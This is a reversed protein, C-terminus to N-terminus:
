AVRAEESMTLAQLALGARLINLAANTDAHATHGCATCAFVTGKRFAADVAGCEHCTRSTFAAPVEIVTRGACEAKYFTMRLLTAWGQDGIARNLARKQAVNVGHKSVTGRASRIMGAVSLHEFVITDNENVLRRSFKHLFDRRRNAEREQHRALLARAKRQRKSSSQRRDVKRQARRRSAAGAQRARPGEIQEGTSLAFPVTVGRDVGISTDTPPLAEADPLRISFSAYWRGNKRKVTITRIEAGDPIDRHWRVRMSGVGMVRLRGDRLGAGEDLPWTLSDYRRRQRFRPFGPAEGAACRRFFAAFAKDLRELASRQARLSMGVPLMGAARVQTLEAQQMYLTMSVGYSRWMWKRQELAANYLDCAASLQEDLAARQAATPYLRYRYSRLISVTPDHAASRGLHCSPRDACDIERLPAVLVRAM